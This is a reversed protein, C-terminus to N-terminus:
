LDHRADAILRKRLLIEARGDRVLDPIEGVPQFGHRAYFRHADVNFDSAAVWLNRHAARRAETEVFGIVASGFGQGQTGPKLAFSQIYPGWLWPARVAIAGALAGDARIAFRYAGPEDHAFFATMQEASVPYRKWPDISAFMSGLIAAEGPGIRDLMLHQTLPYPPAEFPSATVVGAVM